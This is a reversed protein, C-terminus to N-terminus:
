SMRYTVALGYARRRGLGTSWARHADDLAVDFAGAARLRDGGAEGIEAAPVGADAAMALVRPVIRRRSRSCSARRRSRSAREAGTDLAAGARARARSRRSFGIDSGFAMEALAVALGGDACDHVGALRGSACSISSWSTCACARRRSRRAAPARRRSRAAGGGVGIRRAGRRHRRARRHPRRCRLAADAAPDALDDILGLVAVVPTPDIDAGQSENYFSVNGGVVPLGFAECAEAIGEVVEAFAWMVEPHEPNGFNLCNVLALPSAGACAVNRAAEIVVLRGGTRPDLRCFRAKGDTSLALAKTTGKVRLM